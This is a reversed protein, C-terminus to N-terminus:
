YLSTYTLITKSYIVQQSCCLSYKITTSLCQGKDHLCNRKQPGGHVLCSFQRKLKM